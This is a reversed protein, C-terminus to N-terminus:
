KLKENFFDELLILVFDVRFEDRFNEVNANLIKWNWYVVFTIIEFILLGNKITILIVM